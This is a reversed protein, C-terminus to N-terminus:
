LFHLRKVEHTALHLISGPGILSVATVLQLRVLVKLILLLSWIHLSVLDSLNIVAANLVILRLLHKSDLTRDQFLVVKLLVLTVLHALALGLDTLLM